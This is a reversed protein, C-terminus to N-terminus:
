MMRPITWCTGEPATVETITYAGLYLLGSTVVGDKTTLTAILEDAKHRVTGDATVIDEKARLEFVADAGM